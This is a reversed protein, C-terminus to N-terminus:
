NKGPIVVCSHNKGVVVAVAEVKAVPQGISGQYNKARLVYKNDVIQKMKKEAHTRLQTSTADANFGWEVLVGHRTDMGTRWYLFSDSHAVRGDPDGPVPGRLEQAVFLPDNGIDNVAAVWTSGWSHLEAENAFPRKMVLEFNQSLHTMEQELSIWDSNVFAKRIQQAVKSDLFESVRVREQVDKMVGENPPSLIVSRDALDFSGHEISLYGFQFALQAVNTGSFYEELPMAKFLRELKVRQRELVKPANSKLMKVLAASMGTRAWSLTIDFVPYSGQESFWKNVVFPCLTEITSTSELCWGNGFKKVYSLAATTTAGAGEEVPLSTRYASLLQGPYTRELENPTYGVLLAFDPSIHFAHEFHNAGSAITNLALNSVGCVVVKILGPAGKTAEFFPKLVSLVFDESRTIAGPKNNLAVDIAVKDYEDVLLVVRKGSAVLEEIWLKLPHKQSTINIKHQRKAEERLHKKFKVSWKEPKFDTVVFSVEMLDLKIVAVDSADDTWQPSGPPFSEWHGLAMHELQSLITSKGMRRPATVFLYRPPSVLLKHMVETKDVYKYLHPEYLGAEPPPAEITSSSWVSPPSNSSKIARLSQATEVSEGNELDSSTALNPHECNQNSSDQQAVFGLWNPKSLVFARALTM